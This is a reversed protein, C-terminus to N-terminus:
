NRDKEKEKKKRMKKEKKVKEKRQQPPAALQSRWQILCEKVSGNIYIWQCHADKSILLKTM